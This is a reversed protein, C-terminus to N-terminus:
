IATGVQSNRHNIIPRDETRPECTKEFYNQLEDLVNSISGVAKGTPYVCSILQYDTPGERIERTDYYVEICSNLPDEQVRLIKVFGLPHTNLLFWLLDGPVPPEEIAGEAVPVFTEGGVDWKYHFFWGETTGGSAPAPDGSKMALVFHSM